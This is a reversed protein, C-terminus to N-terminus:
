RLDSEKTKAILSLLISLYEMDKVNVCECSTHMSKLPLSMVVTKAGKGTIALIDNNTGTGTPEVVVQCPIGNKKALNIIGRSLDRNTLASIDVSPGKKCEISHRAEVGPEKAFNVDTTIVIDPEINFSAVRTEMRGIEEGASLSIFVDYELDKRDTNAIAHICTAGCSRNDLYSSMIYGNEMEMYEGNITVTDGVSVIKELEEKKYGTDILVSEIEPVTTKGGSLHPPTSVVIGYVEEKGHITVESSPLTRLDIGGVNHVSLFGNEHIKTVILGIVDFHADIFLKKANEKGSLKTLIINGLNDSEILDFYPSALANIAKFETNERGSVTPCSCLAKLVAKIDKM